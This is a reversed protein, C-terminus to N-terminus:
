VGFASGPIELPLGRLGLGWIKIGSDQKGFGLGKVNCGTDLVRFGLIKGWVM